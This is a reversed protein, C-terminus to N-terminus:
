VEKEEDAVLAKKAETLMAILPDLECADLHLNMVGCQNPDRTKDKFKGIYVTRPNASVQLFEHNITIRTTKLLIM